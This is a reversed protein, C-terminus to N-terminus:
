VQGHILRSKKRCTVCSWEFIIDKKKKIMVGLSNYLFGIDLTPLFKSLNSCPLKSYAIRDGNIMQHDVLVACASNNWVRFYYTLGIYMFLFFIDKYMGMIRYVLCIRLICCYCYFRRLSTTNRGCNGDRRRLGVECTASLKRGLILLAVQWVVSM